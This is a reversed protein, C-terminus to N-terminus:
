HFIQVVGVDHTQDSDDLDVGDPYDHLEVLVSLHM